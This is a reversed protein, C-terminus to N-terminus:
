LSIAILGIIILAAAIKQNLELKEKLFIISAIVAILPSAAAIPAVLSVLELNIGLAYFLSGMAALIGLLVAIGWISKNAEPHLLKKKLFVISLLTFFFVYFEVYFSVVFPGAASLPIKWLFFLLGWGIVTAFAFGLGKVLGRKSKKLESYKFSILIIGAIIVAMALIQALDLSEKLIFVSLLVTIIVFSHAVPSVVSVNGVAIAKVYFVYSIYGIFGIGLMILMIKASSFITGSFILSVFLLALFSFLSRYLIAYNVGIKNTLKKVFPDELGFLVMTIIGFIIGLSLSM